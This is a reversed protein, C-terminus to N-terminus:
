SLIRYMLIFLCIIHMVFVCSACAIDGPGNNERSDAIKEDLCGHGSIGVVCSAKVARECFERLLRMAFQNQRYQM